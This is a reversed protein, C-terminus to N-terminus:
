ITNDVDFDFKLSVESKVEVNEKGLGLLRNRERLLNALTNWDANRERADIYLSDIRLLAQTLNEDAKASYKEKIRSWAESWLKEAWRQGFQYKDATYRIWDGHTINKEAILMICEALIAEKKDDTSGPKRGM